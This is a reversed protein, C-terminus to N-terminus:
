KKVEISRLPGTMGSAIVYSGRERKKAQYLAADAARLLDGANAAHLPYIAIGGTLGLEIEDGSTTTYSYGAMLNIIKNTVSISAELGSNRMILTLEDGGYRALFDEARMNNALYNFASHLVDDGVTHGHVDNVKKFGDLDMMVVAFQSKMRRAYRIEEQLREDLARRNPLGTVSDTNAQEMIQRHRKANFIAVAAQDALLSLLRTESPTFGGITSRSLNMVGVTANNFKLPIGIISGLWEEGMQDYFPDAEMDEVIRQEGSKLVAYTLGNLRPLALPQNRVGSEVLSAGFDLKDGLYLFIHAARANKVLGMAETVVSDLVTQLDLSASLNLGIRKLADLEDAQQKVLSLLAHKSIIEQTLSGTQGPARGDLPVVDAAEVLARILKLIGEKEESSISSDQEIIERARQFTEARKRKEASMDLGKIMLWDNLTNYPM